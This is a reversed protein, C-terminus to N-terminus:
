PKIQHAYENLFHGSGCAHDIVKIPEPTTAIKQALPLSAVIFKCIPLPTFFQGESQKIGDDLFLEFMEGLFQNQDDTKLRLGQWM